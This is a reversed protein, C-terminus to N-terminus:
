PVPKRGDRPPLLFPALALAIATSSALALIIQAVVNAFAVILFAIFAPLSDGNALPMLPRLILITVAMIPLSAALWLGIMHINVVWNKTLSLYRKFPINAVMPVHGWMLRFQAIMLIFVVLMISMFGPDPPPAKAGSGPVAPPSFTLMLGMLVNFFLTVLAYYLISSLLGRARDLLQPPLPGAFGRPLTIPWRERTFLTRLFQSIMWAEAATAPLMLLGHRLPPLDTLSLLVFNIYIVMVPFLGLRILYFRESWLVRYTATVVAIIDFSPLM